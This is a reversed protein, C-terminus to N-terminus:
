AVQGPTGQRGQSWTEGSRQTLSRQREAALILPMVLACDKEACPTIAGDCLLVGLAGANDFPLSRVVQWVGLTERLVNIGVGPYWALLDGLRAAIPHLIPAMVLLLAHPM